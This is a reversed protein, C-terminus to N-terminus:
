TTSCRHRPEVAHDASDHSEAPAEPPPAVVPRSRALALCLRRLQSARRLRTTVDRAAMSVNM